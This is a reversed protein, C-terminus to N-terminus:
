AAATKPSLLIDVQSFGCALAALIEAHGFGSLAVVEMPIVDSPLGRGHRAADRRSGEPRRRSQRGDM